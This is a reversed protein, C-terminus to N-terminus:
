DWVYVCYEFLQKPRSIKFKCAIVLRLGICVDFYLIVVHHIYRILWKKKGDFLLM